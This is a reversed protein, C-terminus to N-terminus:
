GIFAARLTAKGEPVAALVYVGASDTLAHLATGVVFVQAHAVPAGQQDRVHGEVRGTTPPRHIPAAATTTLTILLFLALGPVLRGPFPDFLRM